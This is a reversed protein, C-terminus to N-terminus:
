QLNMVNFLAPPISQIKVNKYVLTTKADTLADQIKMEDVFAIV